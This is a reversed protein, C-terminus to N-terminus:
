VFDKRYPTFIDLVAGKELCRAGHPENEEFLLSDGKKVIIPIGNKTFEFVGELVYTAQQHEHQHVAGTAGKEFHVEVPMLRESYALLKRSVGNGVDQLPVKENFQVTEM